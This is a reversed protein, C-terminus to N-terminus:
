VSAILTTSPPFNSIKPRRSHIFLFYGESKRISVRMPLTLVNDDQAVRLVLASGALQM